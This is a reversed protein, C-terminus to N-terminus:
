IKQQQKPNHCSKTSIKILRFKDHDGQPSTIGFPLSIDWLLREMSCTLTNKARGQSPPSRPHDWIRVRVGGPAIQLSQFDTWVVHPFPLCWDLSQKCYEWHSLPEALFKAANQSHWNHHSFNVPSPPATVRSPDFLCDVYKTVAVTAWHASATGNTTSPSDRAPIYRTAHHQTINRCPTSYARSYRNMFIWRHRTDPRKCLQPVETITDM